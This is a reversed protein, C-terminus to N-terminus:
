ITRTFYYRNHAQKDIDVVLEKRIKLGDAMLIDGSAEEIGRIRGSAQRYEGGAKKGDPVFYTIVLEPPEGPINLFEQLKYDLLEREDESRPRMFDGGATETPHIENQLNKSLLDDISTNYLGSLRILNKPSPTTKGIEYYSYTSRDVELFSAVQKQSYGFFKRLYKLNAALFM